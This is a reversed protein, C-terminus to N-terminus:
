ALGVERLAQAVRHASTHTTQVWRFARERMAINHVSGAEDLARLVSDVNNRKYEIFHRGPSLFEDAREVDDYLLIGGAGPYQFLRVDLWGPAEPRGYGLVATASAALEPTHMLTHPLADTPFVKFRDGLRKRLALVLATRNAYIGSDHLRGAFALLCRLEDVPEAMERQVFAFYPWRVQRIGWVSRDATHNCLVIDIASSINAKFRTERRADGDHLLIKTGRKRWKECLALIDATRNPERDSGPSWLLMHGWIIDPQMQAARHAITDIHNRINVTAHWHGLLSMGQNIGFILESPYYDVDGVLLSRLPRKM